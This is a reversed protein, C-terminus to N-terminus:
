RTNFIAKAKVTGARWCTPCFGTHCVEDCKHIGCSHKKGCIINCAHNRDTCCKQNCKHRGCKRKKSCKKECLIVEGLIFLLRSVEWM